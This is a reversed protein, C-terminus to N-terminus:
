GCLILLHMFNSDMEDGEGRFAIGQRALFQINSLIKLLCERNEKKADTHQKSLMEGIDSHTAPLLTVQLAEKHFASAEHNKFRITVDKWNSFGKSTFAVDGRNLQMKKQRLASVCTHCFVADTDECYHLWTWRTFWSSQFSRKVINKKGFERKPYVFTAAPHHPSDQMDPLVVNRKINKQYFAM